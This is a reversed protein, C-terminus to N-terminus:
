IPAANTSIPPAGIGDYFGKFQDYTAVQTGGVVMARMVFPQSGRGHRSTTLGTVHAEAEQEASGAISGRTARLFSATYCADFRAPLIDAAYCM